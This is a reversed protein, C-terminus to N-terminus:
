GAADQLFRPLGKLESRKSSAPIVVSSTPKMLVCPVEVGAPSRASIFAMRVRNPSPMDFTARVEFLDAMPCRSPAAPATSAMAVPKERRSPMIGRGAIHLIQVFFHRRFHLKYPVLRLFLVDPVGKGVGETESPM